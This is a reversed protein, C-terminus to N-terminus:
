PTLSVGTSKEAWEHVWKARVAFGRKGDTGFCVAAWDPPQTDTLVWSGSDGNTPAVARGLLGSPQPVMEIVDRFCFNQSGSSFSYSICLSGLWHKNTGTSAGTMVVSQGPSLSSAIGGVTTRTAAASLEILACDLMNIDPGNSPLPNPTALNIPDCVRPSSLPVRGTDAICVGIQNGSKDNVVFNKQAVHSCTIGYFINGAPDELVGGLTGTNTPPVDIQDGGALTLTAAPREEIRAFVGSDRTTRVLQQLLLTEDQYLEDVRPGRLVRHVITLIIPLRKRGTEKEFQDALQQWRVVRENLNRHRYGRDPPQLSLAASPAVIREYLFYQPDNVWLLNGTPDILDHEVDYFHSWAPDIDLTFGTVIPIEAVRKAAGRLEDSKDFYARIDEYTPM